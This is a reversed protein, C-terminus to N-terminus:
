NGSCNLKDGAVEKYLVIGMALLSVHVCIWLAASWDKNTWGSAPEAPLYNFALLSLAMFMWHPIIYLACLTACVNGFALSYHWAMNSLIATVDLMHRWGPEPRRWYNISTLVIFTIFVGTTKDPLIVFAAMASFCGNLISSAVMLPVWEAPVRDKEAGPVFSKTKNAHTDILNDVGGGLV